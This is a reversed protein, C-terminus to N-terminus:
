DTCTDIMEQDRYTPAVRNTRGGSGGAAMGGTALRLHEEPLEHGFAALDRIHARQQKRM